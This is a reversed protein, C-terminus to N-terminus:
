AIGGILYSAFEGIADTLEADQPRPHFGHLEMGDETTGAPIGPEVEERSGEAEVGEDALSGGFEAM